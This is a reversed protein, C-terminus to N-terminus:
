EHDEAPEKEYKEQCMACRQAHPLFELRAIPIEKECQICQGFDDSGIRHLANDIDALARTEANILQSNLDDAQAKSSQEDLDDEEGNESISSLGSNLLELIQKRKELLTLKLEEVKNKRNSKM